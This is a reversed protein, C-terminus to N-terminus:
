PLTFPTALPDRTMLRPGCLTYAVGGTAALTAPSTLTGRLVRINITTIPTNGWM